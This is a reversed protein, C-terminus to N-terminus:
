NVFFQEVKRQLRIMQFSFKLCDNRSGVAKSWICAWQNNLSVMVTALGIWSRPLNKTSFFPEFVSELTTSDMGIGNDSITIQFFSGEPQSKHQVSTKDLLISTTEIKLIGGNPMAEKANVALSQLTQVFQNQDIFCVGSDPDLNLM